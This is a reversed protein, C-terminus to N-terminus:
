LAFLTGDPTRFRGKRFGSSLPSLFKDSCQQLNTLYYEKLYKLYQRLVSEPRYNEKNPPDVKKFIPTIDAAKLENPFENKKISKDICNVLNECIEKNTFGEIIIRDKIARQM